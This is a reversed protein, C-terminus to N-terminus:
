FITISATHQLMDILANSAKMHVNHIPIYKYINYHFLFSIKM